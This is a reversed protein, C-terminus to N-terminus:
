LQWGGSRLGLDLLEAGYFGIDAIATDDWKAGAYIDRIKIEIYSCRIGPDIEVCFLEKSDPFDVDFTQETETTDDGLTIRLTKPRNNGTYYDNTKWNGLRFTLYEIYYSNDFQAYVKEGIGPGDVGEQWSTSEVGDFLQMPSNDVGEQRIVSTAEANVVELPISSLM